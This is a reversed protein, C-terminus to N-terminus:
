IIQTLNKFRIVDDGRLTIITQVMERRRITKGTETGTKPNTAPIDFAREHLDDLGIKLDGDVQQMTSLVKNVNFSELIERDDETRIYFFQNRM